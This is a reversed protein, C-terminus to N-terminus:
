NTAASAPRTETIPFPASAALDSTKPASVDTPKNCAALGLVSMLSALVVASHNMTPEKSPTM